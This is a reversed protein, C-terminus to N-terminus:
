QNVTMKRVATGQRVIYMAPAVGELTNGVYRGGLDYVRYPASFDICDTTYSDFVDDIGTTTKAEVKEFLSWPMTSSYKDQSKEPIYLTAKKYTDSSFVSEDATVPNEAFYYISALNDCGTFAGWGIAQVSSPIKVSELSWCNSFADWAITQVSEPIAISTLSICDYFAYAEIASVYDPIVISVLKICGFFTSEGILTVTEPIVVSIINACGCFARDAITTVTEPIIIETGEYGGPCQMLKTMDKSYLIGDVSAYHSNREDINIAKLATCNSFARDEICEIDAPIDVKELAMCNEFASTEIQTVSEPINVSVLKYCGEFTYYMIKTVSNPIVVSTLSNCSRFASPGIQNVLSPIDVSNLSECCFFSAEGIETVSEPIVVTKLDRDSNFSYSGIAVVTYSDTGDSATSPIILDGSINNGPTQSSGEKLMCTKENEDIVTYNLTQGEYEYSFDRACVPLIGLLGLALLLLKKM